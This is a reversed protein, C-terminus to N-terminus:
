LTMVNFLMSKCSLAHIAHLQMGAAIAATDADRAPTALHGVGYCCLGVRGRACVSTGTAQLM